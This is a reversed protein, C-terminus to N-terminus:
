AAEKEDLGDAIRELAEAIRNLEGIGDAIRDLRENMDDLTGMWRAYDRKWGITDFYNAM